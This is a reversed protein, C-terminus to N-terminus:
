GPTEPTPVLGGYDRTEASEEGLGPPYPEAGVLEHPQSQPRARDEIHMIAPIFLAVVGILTMAVGGVIFWVQVGLVDALPGALVLGLPSAAAAGSSVLTFVRGQMEPPVIAQLVAMFSGNVITNLFGFVFFMGMVVGIANAPAFGVAAIGMGEVILGLMVTVIRRKFGGWVSLVLGGIVMGIGFASELGALEPAGSKFHETVLLPLLSMAPHVLMNIVTASLVIMLLGPWGWVFRLGERFDVSVSRRTADQGNTISEPQPIAVFFLPVIAFLATGVDIALIGQISLIALLLAGLPPSIINSLGFLTQNMGAIRPLHRPPVMLTTSAQMAPWHFAGGASRIFMLLLVHGVEVVDLAFLAALVLTALAIVSDAVLMVTRRNWRDVLTGAVPSLFIQPLLGVITAGALVTASGTTQTLWWILAFQVLSSGFLSIAQGTWIIFFSTMSQAHRQNM